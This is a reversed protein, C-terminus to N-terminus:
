LCTVDNIVCGPSTLSLIASILPCPTNRHSYNSCSLTPTFSSHRSAKHACSHAEKHLERQIHHVVQSFWQTFKKFQAVQQRIEWPVQAQNLTPAGTAKALTRNNTLFAVHKVQISNVIKAALVLAEAEAQLVSPVRPISAQISVTATYHLDQIQCYVGIGTSMQEESGAENSPKWAADSFIKTGAFHLSNPEEQQEQREVKEQVQMNTVDEALMHLCTFQPKTTDLMELNHIITQAMHNIQYPSGPKRGFLNDNQSKWICWMFTLINSLTAHPHNMNLNKLIIQTLSNCNAVVYKSRIYWRLSGLQKQLPAHSSFISTMRKLVVDLVYSVLIFLSSVLELEQQCQKELFDGASHRYEQPLKDTRGSRTSSSSLARNFRDQDQNVKNRCDKFVLAIHLKQTANVQPTLKWCLIDEEQSHIIPTQKVLDAM